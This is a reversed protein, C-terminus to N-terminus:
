RGGYFFKKKIGMERSRETEMGFHIGWGYFGIQLWMDPFQESIMRALKESLAKSRERVGMLYIHCDIAEGSFHQSTKSPNKGEAKLRKYTTMSRYCHAIRIEYKTNQLVWNEMERHLVALKKFNRLLDIDVVVKDSDSSHLFDCLKYEMEIGDWSGVHVIEHLSRNIPRYM